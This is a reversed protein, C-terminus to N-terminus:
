IRLASRPLLAKPVAVVSCCLPVLFYGRCGVPIRNIIRNIKHSRKKAGGWLAILVSDDDSM